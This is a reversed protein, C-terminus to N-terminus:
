KTENWENQERWKIQKDAYEMLKVSRQEEGVIRIFEFFRRKAEKSMKKSDLWMEIAKLAIPVLVSLIAGWM